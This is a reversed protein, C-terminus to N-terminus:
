QVLAVIATSGGWLSSCFLHFIKVLCQHRVTIKFPPWTQLSITNLMFDEIHINEHPLGSHCEIVADKCEGDIALQACQTDFEITYNIAHFSIIDIFM